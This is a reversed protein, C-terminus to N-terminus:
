NVLDLMRRGNVSFGKHSCKRFTCRKENDSMIRARTEKNDDSEQRKKEAKEVLM